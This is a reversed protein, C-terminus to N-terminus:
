RSFLGNIQAFLTPLVTQWGAPTPHVGGLLESAPCLATAKSLYTLDDTSTKVWAELAANFADVQPQLAPRVFLTEFVIAARRQRSRLFRYLTQIQQMITATPLGLSNTGICAAYVRAAPMTQCLRWVQNAVTDGGVAYVLVSRQTLPGFNYTTLEATISDGLMCVDVSPTAKARAVASPTDALPIVNESAWAPCPELALAPPAGSGRLLGSVAGGVSAPASASPNPAGPPPPSQAAAASSQALHHRAAMSGVSVACLVGAGLCALSASAVALVAVNNGRGM